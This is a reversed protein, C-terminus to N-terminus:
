NNPMGAIFQVNHQIHDEMISRALKGDRSCIARIVNQHAQIAEAVLAHRTYEVTMPIAKVLLPFILNVVSNHSCRAIETHFEMDILSHDEEKAYADEIQTELAQLRGIDEDTANDAALEALSPEIILRLQLLELVLKSKDQVFRFGLPDETVGPSHAVFTGRGHDIRIINRSQLIKEAERVTSRSVGLMSCLQTENPLRDEPALQNTLIYDIIQEATYDARSQGSFPIPETM